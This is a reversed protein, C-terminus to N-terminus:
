PGWLGPLEALRSIVFDPKVSTGPPVGQGALDVSSDHDLITNDLDILIAKPPIM